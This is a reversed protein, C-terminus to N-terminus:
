LSIESGRIRIVEQGRGARERERDRSEIGGGEEWRLDSAPARLPPDLIWPRALEAIWL